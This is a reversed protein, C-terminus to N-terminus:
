LHESPQEEFVTLEQEISTSFNRVCTCVSGPLSLQFCGGRCMGSPPPPAREAPFVEKKGVVVQLKCFSECYLCTELWCAYWPRLGVLVNLDDSSSEVIDPWDGGSWKSWVHHPHPWATYELLKGPIDRPCGLHSDSVFDSWLPFPITIDGNLM